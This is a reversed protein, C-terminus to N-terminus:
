KTEGEVPPTLGDDLEFGSPPTKMGIPMVVVKYGLVHLMTNFNATNLGSSRRTSLRENLSQVTLVQGYQEKLSEVLQGQKWGLTNMIHRIIMKAQM